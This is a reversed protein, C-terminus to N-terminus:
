INWLCLYADGPRFPNVSDNMLVAHCKGSKTYLEHLGWCWFPINFLIDYQPGTKEKNHYAISIVIGSHEGKFDRGHSRNAKNCCVVSLLAWTWHNSHQDTNGNIYWQLDWYRTEVAAGRYGAWQNCPSSLVLCPLMSPPMSTWPGRKSDHYLKLGLM